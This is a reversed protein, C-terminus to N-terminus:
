GNIFERGRHFHRGKSVCNMAVPCRTCPVNFKEGLSFKDGRCHLYVVDQRGM